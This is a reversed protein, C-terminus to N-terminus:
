YDRLTKKYFEELDALSCNVALKGELGTLELANGEVTGIEAFSNGKLAAEFAEKNKPNITAVFRSQSESFLLSDNREIEETPVKALELKM